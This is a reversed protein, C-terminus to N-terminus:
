DVDQTPTTTRAAKEVGGDGGSLDAEAGGGAVHQGSRGVDGVGSAHEEKGGEIRRSSDECPVVGGGYDEGKPWGEM